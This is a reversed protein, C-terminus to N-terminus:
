LHKGRILVRLRKQDTKNLKSARDKDRKAHRGEIWSKALALLEVDSICPHVAYETRHNQAEAIM